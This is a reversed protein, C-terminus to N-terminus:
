AHLKEHTVLHGLNIRDVGGLFDDSLLTCKNYVALKLVPQFLDQGLRRM